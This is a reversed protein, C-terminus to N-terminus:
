AYHRKKNFLSQTSTLKHLMAGFYTGMTLILIYTPMIPTNTLLETPVFHRVKALM